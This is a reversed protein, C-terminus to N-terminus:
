GLEVLGATRLPRTSWEYLALAAATAGNLSETGESMPIAVAGARLESPLGPGEVGPVLVFGEPPFSFSPLPTGEASLAVVKEPGLGAALESLSGAQWLTLRLAALGGARLAKPHFPSAADRLLIVEQVGMAAASRLVAGVNEPDQFPVALVADSPLGSWPRPAEARVVVLPGGTGAVDLAKLLSPALVAVPLEPPAEAPVRDTGKAVLLEVCLHPYDRLVEPVLKSGAVIAQGHKRVGKGTLLESWQRFSDNREADIDRSRRRVLELPDDLRRYVVLRRRHTTMPIDYAEDSLLKWSRSLGRNADAIEDDCNPGKMFVAVGGPPVMQAVRQLTVPIKEFARTIIGGVKDRFGSGLTQHWTRIGHLGCHDIAEDMFAIRRVRMECCVVELQPLAIKLPIGPLGAGSGIDLLPSPLQDGLLRALKQAALVCDVYHLSVMTDFARLRTLDGDGNRQHLLQHYAWLQQIAPEALPAGSQHMMKQLNGQSPAYKSM